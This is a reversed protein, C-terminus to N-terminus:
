SLTGTISANGVVSLSGTITTTAVALTSGSISGDTFTSDTIAGTFTTQPRNWSDADMVNTTTIGRWSALRQELYESTIGPLIPPQYTNQVITTPGRYASARPTSAAVPLTAPVSVEEQVPIVALQPAGFIKAFLTHTSQALGQSFTRLPAPIWSGTLAVLPSASLTLATSARHALNSVVQVPSLATALEQFVPGSALMTQVASAVLRDEAAFTDAVISSARTGVALQGETLTSAVAYSSDVWTSVGQEYAIPTHVVSYALATQLTDGLALTPAVIAPPIASTEEVWTYVGAVYLAVVQDSASVISQGLARHTRALVAPTAVGADRVQVGLTYLADGTGTLSALYQTGFVDADRVAVEGIARYANLVGHGITALLVGPNALVRSTNAYLVAFSVSEPAQSDFQLARDNAREVIHVPEHVTELQSVFRAAQELTVLPSVEGYVNEPIVVALNESDRVTDFVVTHARTTAELIKNGVRAVLGSESAYVSGGLIALTLLVAVGQRVMLTGSPVFRRSSGLLSSVQFVQHEVFVSFKPAPVPTQVPNRYEDGRTRSLSEAIEKKRVIQQAIFSELSSRSVLWTRGVQTGEIKKERCLRSLYDANYGSLESAEKTSILATDLLPKM